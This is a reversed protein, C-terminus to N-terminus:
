GRARRRGVMVRVRGAFASVRGALMESVRQARPWGPWHATQSRSAPSIDLLKRKGSFSALAVDSLDKGVLTFPRAQEGAAPFRGAVNVPKGHFTVQSM